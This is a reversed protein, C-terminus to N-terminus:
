QTCREETSSKNQEQRTIIFLHNYDMRTNYSYFFSTSKIVMVGRVEEQPPSGDSGDSGGSVKISYSLLYEKCNMQNVARELAIVIKAWQKVWEKESQQIVLAYTNGMMAILMNLLLIPVMIMFIVFVTTTM